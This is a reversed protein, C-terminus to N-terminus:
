ELKPNEFDRVQFLLHPIKIKNFYKDISVIKPRM